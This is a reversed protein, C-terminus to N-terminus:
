ARTDFELNGRTLYESARMVLTQVGEVGTDYGSCLSGGEELLHVSLIRGLHEVRQSQGLWAWAKVGGACPKM